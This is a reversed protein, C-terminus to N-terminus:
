TSVLGATGVGSDKTGIFCLAARCCYINVMIAANGSCDRCCLVSFLCVFCYPVVARSVVVVIVSLCLFSVGSFDCVAHGDSRKEVVLVSFPM